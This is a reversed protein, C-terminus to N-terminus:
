KVGKIYDLIHYTKVENISTTCIDEIFQGFIPKVEHLKILKGNDLIEYYSRTKDIKYIKHSIKYLTQYNVAKIILISIVRRSMVVVNTADDIIWKVLEM